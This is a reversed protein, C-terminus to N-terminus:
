KDKEQNSAYALGIVGHTLIFFPLIQVLIKESTPIHASLDPFLFIILILVVLFIATIILSHSLVKFVFPLYASAPDIKEKELVIPRLALIAITALGKYGILSITLIAGLGIFIQILFSLNLNKYKM